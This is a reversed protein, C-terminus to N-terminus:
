NSSLGVRVWRDVKKLFDAFPDHGPPPAFHSKSMYDLAGSYHEFKKSLQEFMLFRTRYLALDLESVKRYCQQGTRLYLDLTGRQEVHQRFLGSMFLAYDGVYKRMERQRMLPAPLSDDPVAPNLMEVINDLRGGAVTQLRYLSDSHAFEALMSAVYNVIDADFLGLEGFSREALQHFFDRLSPSTRDSM